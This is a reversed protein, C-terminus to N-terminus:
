STREQDMERSCGVDWIDDVGACGASVGMTSRKWNPDPNAEKLAWSESGWLVTNVVIAQYLRCRIDIPINKNSLLQKNM